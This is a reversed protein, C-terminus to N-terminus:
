LGEELRSKYLHNARHCAAAAKAEARADEECGECLRRGNIIPLPEEDQEVIKEKCEDCTREAISRCKWCIRDGDFLVRCLCPEGCRECLPLEAQCVVVSSGDELDLEIEKAGCTPCRGEAYASM